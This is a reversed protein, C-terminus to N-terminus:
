MTGTVVGSAGLASYGSVGVLAMRHAAHGAIAPLSRYLDILLNNCVGSYLRGPNLCNESTVTANHRTIMVLIGSILLVKHMAAAASNKVVIGM